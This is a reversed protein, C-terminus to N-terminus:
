MYANYNNLRRKPLTLGWKLCGKGIRCLNSLAVVLVQSGSEFVTVRRLFMRRSVLDERVQRRNTREHRGGAETTCKAVIASDDAQGGRGCWRWDALRTM